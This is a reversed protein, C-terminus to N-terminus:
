NCHLLNTSTSICVMINRSIRINKTGKPAEKWATRAFQLNPLRLRSWKRLRLKESQTLVGLSVFFQRIADTEKPGVIRSCEDPMSLIFGGGLDVSTRPNSPKTPELDPLLALLANVQAQRGGRQALNEYLKSPQSIEEGLSGITREMPWQTYIIGPGLRIIEPGIHLLAHISQRCFHLRSEKSQYYIKEYEMVFEVMLLHAAMVQKRSIKRQHFIRAAMVLKCFNKWYKHPLIDRLLGPGLGYIYTLFEWAKYGSSGKLQPNRPPRDFSGPLHPKAASVREGHQKWTDGILVVWDWTSKDDKPSPDCEMKGQWHSLFLATINLAYLHMLDAGHGRPPPLSRGTPFASFISPRSIGTLLRANQYERPNRARLVHRLGQNYKEVTGIPLHKGDVTPHDCGVASYNDPKSLAPYYHTGKKRGKVDCHLRCGFAGSHGTLGNLYTLGPGDALGLILFPHSLFSRSESADWIALGEKMLASVHHFGPYLFSDMNGPKKPGPFFGGPIIHRKKYRAGPALDLIVWIYIWCDSEQSQYLQAGDISMMLVVDDDKIHGAAVANIYETGHFIDEYEEIVVKKDPHSEAKQLMERTFNRRYRMAEAGEKTRYLAQIQPGIPITLFQRQPKKTKGNSSLLTEQDYRPTQCSSCSELGSLPGTYAICSNPCMDHMIPHVGTMERMQEKVTHLSPMTMDIGQREMSRNYVNRATNYVEEPLHKTGVFLELGARLAEDEDLNVTSEQPTRLRDIVHQPLAMDDLKADEIHRIFAQALKLEELTATPQEPQEGPVNVPPVQDQHPFSPEPLPPPPLPMPDTPPQSARLATDELGATFNQSNEQSLLM